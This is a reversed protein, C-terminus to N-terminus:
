LPAHNELLLHLECFRKAQRRGRPDTIRNPEILNCLPLPDLHIHATSFDIADQDTRFVPTKFTFNISNHILDVSNKM